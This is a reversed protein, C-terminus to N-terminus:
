NHWWWFWWNWFLFCLLIIRYDLRFLDTVYIFNFFLM